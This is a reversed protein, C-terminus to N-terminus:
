FPLEKRPIVPGQGANIDVGAPASDSASPPPPQNAAGMSTPAQVPPLAQTLLPARDIRAKM